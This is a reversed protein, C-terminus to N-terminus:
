PSMVVAVMVMVVVMLSGVLMVVVVAVAMAGNAEEGDDREEDRGYVLRPHGDRHGGRRHRQKGGQRDGDVACLLSSFVCCCVCM